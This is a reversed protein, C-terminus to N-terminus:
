DVLGSKLAIRILGAVNHVDMKKMLNTRHTDVTRHSIFLREGIEKNSYGEAVLKLIEVERETLDKVEEPLENNATIETSQNLLSMTVDTSFFTEGRCIARIGKELEERSSNKLIYGDAGADMLTQIVGKENHMSLTLVRVGNFNKKIERTANIGNMVPMDIDLVAIDPKEKTAIFDVADKGNSVAGIVEFDNIDSLLSKLGDLVIQHDDALLIKIKSM